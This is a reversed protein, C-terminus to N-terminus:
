RGRRSLIREAILEAEENMSTEEEDPGGDNESAGGDDTLLESILSTNVFHYCQLAVFTL